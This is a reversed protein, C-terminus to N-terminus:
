GTRPSINDSPRPPQWSGPPSWWRGESCLWSSERCSWHSWHSIHLVWASFASLWEPDPLWWCFTCWTFRFKSHLWKTRPCGTALAFHSLLCSQFNGSDDQKNEKCNMSELSDTMNLSTSIQTQCLISINLGEGLKCLMKHGWKFCPVCNLALKFCKGGAM